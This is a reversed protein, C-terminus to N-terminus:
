IIKKPFRFIVFVFLSTRFFFFSYADYLFYDYILTFFTIFGIKHMNNVYKLPFYSFSSSASYFSNRSYLLLLFFYFPFHVTDLSLNCM